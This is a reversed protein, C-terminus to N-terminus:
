GVLIYTLCSLDIPHNEFNVEKIEKGNVYGKLGNERKKEKRKKKKEVSECM